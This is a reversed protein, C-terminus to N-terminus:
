IEFPIVVDVPARPPSDMSTEFHSELRNGAPDELTGRAVLAHAGSKWPLNPIFTWITEGSTLQARGEVREDHVDVVALYDAERGEIPGDLTVVLRQKSAVRVTSIKWASPMPGMADTPGVRWRKIPIADLTLAVDDGEPLIPGVEERAKLGSKVRAPHMLITLVKGSPSWLEQDLFPEQIQSGDSRSLALRTLVPGEVADAFEISLRLLNAPVVSDSPQVLVVRVTPEGAQSADLAVALSAAVVWRCLHV